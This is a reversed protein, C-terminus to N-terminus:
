EQVKVLYEPTVKIGGIDILLVGNEVSVADVKGSFPQRTVPNIADVTKGILNSKAILEMYPSVGSTLTSQGGIDSPVNLGGLGGFLPSSANPMSNFLSSGGFVASDKTEKDGFLIDLNNSFTQAYFLNVYDPNTYASGTRGFQSPDITGYNGNSIPPISGYIM